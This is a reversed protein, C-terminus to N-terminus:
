NTISKITNISPRVLTPLRSQLGTLESAVRSSQVNTFKSSVYSNMVPRTAQIDAGFTTKATKPKPPRGKKSLQTSLEEAFSAREAPTQEMVPRERPTQIQESSRASPREAPTSTGSEPPSPLPSPAALEKPLDQIRGKGRPTTRPGPGPAQSSEILRAQQEARSTMLSENLARQMQVDETLLSQRELTTSTQGSSSSAQGQTTTRATSPAQGSTRAELQKVAKQYYENLVKLQDNKSKAQGTPKLVGREVAYESLFINNAEAFDLAQEYVFKKVALDGQAQISEPAEPVKFGSEKATDVLTDYLREFELIDNQSVLSRM